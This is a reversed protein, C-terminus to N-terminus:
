VVDFWRHYRDRHLYVADLLQTKREHTLGEKHRSLHRSLTLVNDIIKHDAIHFRIM